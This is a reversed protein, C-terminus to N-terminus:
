FNFNHYKPITDITICKEMQDKTNNKLLHVEAACTTVEKILLHASNPKYAEPTM